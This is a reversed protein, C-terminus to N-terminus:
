SETLAIMDNALDALGQAASMSEGSAQRTTSAAEDVSGAVATISNAAQTLREVRDSLDTTTGTQLEIASAISRVLTTMDQLLTAM